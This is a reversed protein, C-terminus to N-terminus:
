AVAVAIGLWAGTACAMLLVGVVVMTKSIM